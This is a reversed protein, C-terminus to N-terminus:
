TVHKAGVPTVETLVYKSTSGTKLFRKFRKWGGKQDAALVKVLTKPAAMQAQMQGIAAEHRQINTAMNGLEVKIVQAGRAVLSTSNTALALTQGGSVALNAGAITGGQVVLGSVEATTPNLSAAEDLNASTLTSNDVPADANSVPLSESSLTDSKASTSDLIEQAETAQAKALEITEEMEALLGSDEMTMGLGELIAELVVLQNQMAVAFMQKQELATQAIKLGLSNVETQLSKFDEPSVVQLSSIQSSLSAIKDNLKDELDALQASISLSQADNSAIGAATREQTALSTLTSSEYSNALYLVLYQAAEMAINAIQWIRNDSLGQDVAITVSYEKFVLSALLGVTWMVKFLTQIQAEYLLFSEANETASGPSFTLQNVARFVNVNDGKYNLTAVDGVNLTTAGGWTPAGQEDKERAILGLDIGLGGLGAIKQLLEMRASAQSPLFALVNGLERDNVCKTQEWLRIGDMFVTNMTGFTNSVQSGFNNQTLTNGLFVSFANSVTSNLLGLGEAPNM